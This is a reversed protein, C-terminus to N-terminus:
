IFLILLNNIKGPLKGILLHLPFLGIDFMFLILERRVLRRPARSEEDVSLVPVSYVVCDELEPDISVTDSESSDMSSSCVRSVEVLSSEESELLESTSMSEDLWSESLELPDM